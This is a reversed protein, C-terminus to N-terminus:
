SVSISDVFLLFFVSHELYEVAKKSVRSSDQIVEDGYKPM